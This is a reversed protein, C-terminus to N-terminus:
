GNGPLKNREVSDIDPLPHIEQKLTIKRQEVAQWIAAPNQRVCPASNIFRARHQKTWVTGYQIAKAKSISDLM